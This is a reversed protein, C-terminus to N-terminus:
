TRTARGRIGGALYGREERRTISERGAAPVSAVMFGSGRRMAMM